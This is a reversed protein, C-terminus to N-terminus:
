VPTRFIGRYSNFHKKLGKNKFLNTVNCVNLDEPFNLESKIRNMLKTIALILDEGAVDPKLLENPIDYSDKSKGTKLSKLVYTVDEVSWEPTKNNSAQKLRSTCLKERDKKIQELGPKIQRHRFVNKYHKVAEDRIDKESTILKGETTVMATRPENVKPYLKKKLQM